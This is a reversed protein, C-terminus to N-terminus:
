PGEKWKVSGGLLLGEQVGQKGGGGKNVKELNQLKKKAGWCVKPKIKEKGHGSRNKKSVKKKEEKLM